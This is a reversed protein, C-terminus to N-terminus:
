SHFPSLFEMNGFTNYKLVNTRAHRMRLTLKDNHIFSDHDTEKYFDVYLEVDIDIIEHLAKYLLLLM